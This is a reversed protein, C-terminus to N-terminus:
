ERRPGACLGRAELWDLAQALRARGAADRAPARREGNDDRVVEFVAHPGADGADILPEIGECGDLLAGIRVRWRRRWDQDPVDHVMIRVRDGTALDVHVAGGAPAYRDFVVQM